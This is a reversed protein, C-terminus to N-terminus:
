AATKAVAKKAATKTPTEPRASDSKSSKPTEAKPAPAAEKKPAQRTARESVPKTDPKATQAHDLTPSAPKSLSDPVLGPIELVAPRRNRRGRRRPRQDEAEAPAQQS